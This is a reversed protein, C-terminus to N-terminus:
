FLFLSPWNTEVRSDSPVVDRLKPGIESDKTFRPALSYPKNCNKLDRSHQITYKQGRGLRMQSVADPCHKFVSM